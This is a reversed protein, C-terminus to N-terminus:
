SGRWARQEIVVRYGDRDAFTRGRQDWYPNFSPVETFGAALMAECRRRWEDADPEYFVLLDEVTPRPAIAHARCVTLEFHYPLGPEGLMAGDFGAHDEFRSLVALDLGSCYMATSDELSTVPRAIRIQRHRPATMGRLDYTM